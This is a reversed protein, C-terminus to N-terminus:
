PKLQVFPISLILAKSSSTRVRQSTNPPRDLDDSWLDMVRARSVPGLLGLLAKSKAFGFTSRHVPPVAALGSPPVIPWRCAWCSVGCFLFAIPIFNAPVVKFTMSCPQSRKRRDGGHGSDKFYLGMEFSELTRPPWECNSKGHHRNSIPSLCLFIACQM